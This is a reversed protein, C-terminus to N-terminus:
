EGEGPASGPGTTAPPPPPPPALGVLPPVLRMYKINKRSFRMFNFINQDTTPPPPPHPTSPPGGKSEGSSVTRYKHFHYWKCLIYEDANMMVRM